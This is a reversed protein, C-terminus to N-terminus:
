QRVPPVARLVMSKSSLILIMFFDSDSHLIIQKVNELMVVHLATIQEFIQKGPVCVHARTHAHVCTRVCGGMRTCVCM